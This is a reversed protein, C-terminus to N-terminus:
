KNKCLELAAEMIEDRGQRIGEVTSHVEVDPQIGTRQTQTGDVEYIGLSTFRLQLGGPLPLFAVNGDTGTSPVGVVTVNDAEKLITILYESRSVSNQDMLVVVPNEYPYYSQSYTLLSSDYGAFVTDKQFTGPSAASPRALVISPRYTTPVYFYLGMVGSYQRLDIVLSDTNRLAEMVKCLEEETQLVGPNLIGINGDVIQYSELGNLRNTTDSVSHPVGTVTFSCEEGDRQVVVAMEEAESNVIARWACTLLMEERPLSYYERKEEALEEMTKGNISVLIDGKELPCNEATDTVVLKGEADTVPVPLYYGGTTPRYQRKRDTTVMSLQTHPDQLKGAAYWLAAEYSRQDEADLMMPITELLVADWDEDMCHLYPYYYELANWLRFLGLLRFSQNTYDDEHEPEKSFDPVGLQDFSVPANSRDLKTPMTEPLLALDKVLEEGLYAKDQCWSLDCEQVGAESASASQPIRTKYDVEGLGVFWEHLLANAAEDSEAASVGPILTLLEADWDSNGFLFAPHYYKVYGWVKCLKALNQTEQSANAQYETTAKPNPERQAPNASCAALMFCFAAALLLATARLIKM